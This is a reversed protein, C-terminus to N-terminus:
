AFIELICFLIWLWFVSLGMICFFWVALRFLAYGLPGLRIQQNRNM